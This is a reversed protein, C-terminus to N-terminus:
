LPAGAHPGQAGAGATGAARRRADARRRRRWGRCWRLYTVLDDPEPARRRRRRLRDAPPVAPIRARCRSSRAGAGGVPRALALAQARPRGCPRTGPWPSSRPARGVGASASAADGGARRSGADRVAPRARPRGDPTGVDHGVGRWGVAAAGVLPGADGLGAPCSAPAGRRLRPPARADLEAQAADFFPTATASRSRAPWSPWGSTSCTPSRPWRGASWRARGGACTEPAAEAPPRGTRPRSRRARRRPRWAAGAAARARGARRARRDRPRHPRRQRAAGDLLRGDLVIGAASAPPCSWPSSTAVRRRRRGGLGRRPRAGQRRQRRAVPLGTLEALRARLPFDRWAPINLPSVTRRRPEMPGGCGVGCSRARRGARPRSWGPSRARVHAVPRRAAPTPARQAIDPPRPMSAGSRWSRAVSTSPSLSGSTAVVPSPAALSMQRSKETRSRTVQRPEGVRCLSVSSTALM